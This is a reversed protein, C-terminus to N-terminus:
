WILTVISRAPLTTEAVQGNVCLFFPAPHDSQNMVVAV